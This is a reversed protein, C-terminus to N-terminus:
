SRFEGLDLLRFREKARGDCELAFHLHLDPLSGTSQIGAEFGDWFSFAGIGKAQSPVKKM